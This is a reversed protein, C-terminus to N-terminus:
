AGLRRGCHSCYLADSEPRPGCAVCVRAGTRYARIVAEVEDDAALSAPASSAVPRAYAAKLRAYDADSLKGTAHDLEIEELAAMAREDEADAPTAALTPEVPSSARTRRRATGALVPYLVFALAAAALLAGILLATM